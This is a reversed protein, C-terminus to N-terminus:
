MSPKAAKRKCNWDVKVVFKCNKGMVDESFRGDRCAQFTATGRVLSEGDAMKLHMDLYLESGLPVAVLSRSLPFKNGAVKTMNSKKKVFLMSSYELTYIVSTSAVVVGFVEPKFDPSMPIFEVEIHAETANNFVAYLLSIEGRGDKSTIKTEIPACKEISTNDPCNYLTFTDEFGDCFLKVHFTLCGKASLPQLHPGSLVIEDNQEVSPMQEDVTSVNYLYHDHVGDNVKITGIQQNPNLEKRGKYVVNFVEM